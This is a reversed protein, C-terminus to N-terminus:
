SQSASQKMIERYRYKWTLPSELIRDKRLGGGVLWKYDIMFM